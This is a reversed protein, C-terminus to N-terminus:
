VKITLQSPLPQVDGTSQSSTGLHVLRGNVDRMRRLVRVEQVTTPNNRSPVKYTTGYAGQPVSQTTPTHFGTQGLDRSAGQTLMTQLRLQISRLVPSNLPQVSSLEKAFFPSVVTTAYWEVAQDSPIIAGAPSPSGVQLNRGIDYFYGTQMIVDRLLWLYRACFFAINESEISSSSCCNIVVTGSLIAAKVKRGNSPDFSTMDDFGLQTWQVPSRTVTIVPRQHFQEPTVPVESLVDLETRQDNTWRLDGAPRASFLGQFFRVYSERIYQLPDSRSSTVGQQLGPTRVHATM